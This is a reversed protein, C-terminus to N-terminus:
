NGAPEMTNCISAPHRRAIPTLVIYRHAFGSALRWRLPTLKARLAPHTRAARTM